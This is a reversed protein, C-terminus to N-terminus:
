TPVQPPSRSSSSGEARGHLKTDTVVKRTEETEEGPLPTLTQQQQAAGKHSWAETEGDPFRASLSQFRQTPRPLGEAFEQRPARSM